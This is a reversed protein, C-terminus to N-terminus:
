NENQADDQPKLRLAAIFAPTGGILGIPVWWKWDQGKRIALRAALLGIGFHLLGAIALSEILSLGFLRPMRDLFDLAAIPM